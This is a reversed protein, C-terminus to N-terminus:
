RPHRLLGSPTASSHPTQRQTARQNDNERRKQRESSSSNGSTANRAMEKGNLEEEMNWRFTVNQCRDASKVNDHLLLLERATSIECKGFMVICFLVAAGGTQLSCLLGVVSQVLFFVQQSLRCSLISVV